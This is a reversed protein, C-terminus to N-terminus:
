RPFPWVGLWAHIAAIVGFAVLTIVVLLVDKKAAGPEPRDWVPEARNILIVEIVAWALLGGFLIISAVDGNVLLHAVAWVKVAALQPHRMKGRLRGTTQSMGFLFVAGLMMVNNIHVTWAPPTWVPVFDAMRYGVIMLVLGGVVGAAVIGRGAQGMAARRAPAIRKFFHALAWLVLGLVVILMGM